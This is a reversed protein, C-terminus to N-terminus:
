YVGPIMRSRVRERYREYDPGFTEILAREEWPIAIALYSTSVLAFVLRTATMDPTAFVVLMWAFYLPHRVFGYLGTTELPVHRPPESSAAREVARVGSLDLVDLLRSARITLLIGALQMGYVIARWVGDLRYFTGPVLAWQWCVLAFLLSAVWTYLSRELEPPALRRVVAKAAPRALLSHHFAFISFLLVNIAIATAASGGSRPVASAAPLGNPDVFRILYCYLFWVLSAGFAATGGWAVVFAARQREAM